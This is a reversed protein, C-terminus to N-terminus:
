NTKRCNTRIQGDHTGTLNAMKSMASAFDAFFSSPDKTYAAVVTDTPGGGAFLQQDSHMLGKNGVLNKFYTNDFSAPSVADIPSLNDDDADVSSRCNTKLSTAFSGFIDTDNYIRNRFVRCRAQGITHAGSLAVMEKPSFGKKSFASILDGVDMVPSPIDRNAADISATTSDRRGLQVMWSPGGLAVVSDRAAMALIDACSVVGPCLREVESKISDIVEFGRLSNANPGATKEGTFSETDDLLVSGDCGNVFCDHFHLRLLSAGMRRESLVAKFVAAKVTFIARPCSTSYHTLSLQENAAAATLFAIYM